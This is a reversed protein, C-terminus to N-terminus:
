KQGRGNKLIKLINRYIAGNIIRTIYKIENDVDHKTQQHRPLQSNTNMDLKLATRDTNKYDRMIRPKKETIQLDVTFSVPLHDSRLDNM